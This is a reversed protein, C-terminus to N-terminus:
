VRVLTEPAGAGDWGPVVPVDNAVALRRASSKDGLARLVAPPPGIFAIGEATCRDAFDPRESLFGYGPHIAKCGTARAAAIIADADLYTEAASYGELLVWDDASRVAFSRRDPVSAAVVSRVGMVRLTRAIRVAIEGRNAILVSRFM